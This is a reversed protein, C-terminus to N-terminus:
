FGNRIRKRLTTYTSDYKCARFDRLLLCLPCEGPKPCLDVLFQKREGERQLLSSDAHMDAQLVDLM